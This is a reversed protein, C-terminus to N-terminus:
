ERGHNWLRERVLLLALLLNVKNTAGDQINLLEFGPYHSLEVNTTCKDKM